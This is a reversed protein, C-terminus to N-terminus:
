FAVGVSAVVRDDFSTPSGERELSRRMVGFDLRLDDLDWGLGLAVVGAGRLAANAYHERGLGFRLTWPTEADHYDFGVRYEQSTGTALGFGIWEQSQRAGVAALVRCGRAVTVRLSVGGEFGADRQASVAFSTDSALLHETRTGEVDLQPFAGVGVGVDITGPQEGSSGEPAHRYQFGFRAGVGSGEFDLLRTGSSPSGSTEKTTYTDSRRSWEGAIGFRAQGTGFSVALGARAERSTGESALTGSLGPTSATGITFANSERRLVPQSAYLALAFRSFPWSLTAGAGDFFTSQEDFNRNAARLDQRSLHQLVPSLTIGRAARGAPNDFPEDGLWRDALGLGASTASPPAPVADPFAFLITGLPPPPESPDGPAPDPLAVAALWGAALAALFLRASPVLRRPM